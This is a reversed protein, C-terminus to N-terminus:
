EAATPASTMGWCAVVLGRCCESQLLGLRLILTQHIDGLLPCKLMQMTCLYDAPRRYTCYIAPGCQCKWKKKNRGRRKLLQKSNHPNCIQLGSGMKGPFDENIEDMELVVDYPVGAEALLVNLQGPMRGAVPHIGFRICVFRFVFVANWNRCVLFALLSDSPWSLFSFNQCACNILFWWCCM